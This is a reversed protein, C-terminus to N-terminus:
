QSCEEYQKLLTTITGDEVASFSPQGANVVTTMSLLAEIIILATRQNM